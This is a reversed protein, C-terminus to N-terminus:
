QLHHLSSAAAAMACDVLACIAAIPIAVELSEVIEARISALRHTLCDLSQKVVQNAQMYSATNLVFRVHFDVLLLAFLEYFGGRHRKEPLICWIDSAFDTPAPAHVLAELQEPKIPGRVGAWLGCAECLKSCLMIATTSIPYFSEPSIHELEHLDRLMAKLGQTHRTAFTALCEMALLGGGRVDTVPDKGQFGVTKWLESSRVFPEPALLVRWITHLTQLAKENSDPDFKTSLDEHLRKLEHVVVRPPAEGRSFCCAM